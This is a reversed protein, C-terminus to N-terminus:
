DTVYASSPDPTTGKSFTKMKLSLFVRPVKGLTIENNISDTTTM